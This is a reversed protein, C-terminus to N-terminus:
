KTSSQLLIQVIKEISEPLMEEILECQDTISISPDYHVDIALTNLADKMTKLNSVILSLKQFNGPKIEFGIEEEPNAFWNEETTIGALATTEVVYIVGAAYKSAAMAFLLAKAPNKTAPTTPIENHTDNGQFGLSSGRFVYKPLNPM